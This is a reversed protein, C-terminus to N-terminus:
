EATGRPSSGRTFEDVPRPRPAVRYRSLSALRNAPGRVLLYPICALLFAVILTEGLYIRKFAVIQYVGDILAAVIFVKAVANWGERVLERRHAADTLITWFYAPRGARADQLGARVGLAIAVLPQLVLRFSFPGGIRGGLNEWIRM